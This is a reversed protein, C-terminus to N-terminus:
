WFLQRVVQVIQGTYEEILLADDGVRVWDFGPPPEPLDYNWWDDIVYDPAYWAAPLVEGFLWVHSYFHPPRIYPRSHFRHASHYAHPYAGPRWQARGRWAGRNGDGRNWEERRWEGGNQRWGSPGADNRRDGEFRRGDRGTWRGDDRRHDGGRDRPGDASRRDGEWHGDRRFRQADGLEQRDEQDARDQPTAGPAPGADGGDRGVWREPRGQWRGGGPQGAAQGPQRGQWRGAGPQGMAEGPQRGQWRGGGQFREARGGDATPATPAPRAQPAAPAAPAPAQPPPAQRWAGAHGGPATREHSEGGRPTPREGGQRQAQGGPEQALAAPATGALLLLAFAAITTKM